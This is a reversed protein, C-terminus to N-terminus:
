NGGFYVNGIWLKKNALSYGIAARLDQAGKHVPPVQVQHARAHVQGEHEQEEEDGLAGDKEDRAALEVGGV